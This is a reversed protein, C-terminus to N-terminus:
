RSLEEKIINTLQHQYRESPELYNGEAWENWSKIFVIRHQADKEGVVDLVNRLHRRFLEPTANKLIMSRRGSRPSNDWNPLVMPFVNSKKDFPSTLYEIMEGYEYVGKQTYRVPLKMKFLIRKLKHILSKHVISEVAFDIRQSYIADFGAAMLEPYDTEPRGAFGVFYIDKLGCARALRRWTGIFVAPDPIQSPRYVFFLPKNDVRIYRPDKLAGVISYFHNEYDEVGPYTQEMLIRDPAGHWVGSWTENAWGLCFPFDPRGTELVERFPRELLRKGAFWYHWYMFGEIGCERALAAQRERVGSDRLDYFGFEGPLNPQLHGKYLPKAKVVNSWETFGEGWWRDNEPIPHYQPLYFAIPRVM